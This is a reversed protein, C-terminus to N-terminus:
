QLNCDTTVILNHEKAGPTPHDPISHWQERDVMLIEAHKHNDQGIQFGVALIDVLSCHKIFKKATFTVKMQSLKFAM